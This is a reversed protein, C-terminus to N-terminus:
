VALALATMEYIRKRIRESQRPREPWIGSVRLLGALGDRLTNERLRSPGTKFKDFPFVISPEGPSYTAISIFWLVSNVVARPM